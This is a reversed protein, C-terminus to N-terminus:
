ARPLAQRVKLVPQFLDGTREVRELAQQWDFVLLEPDGEGAAREVADLAM